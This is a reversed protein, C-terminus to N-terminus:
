SYIYLPEFSKILQQDELFPKGDLQLWTHGNWREDRELRIGFALSLGPYFTRLYSFLVFARVLCNKKKLKMPWQKLIFDVYSIVRHINRSDFSFFPKLWSFSAFRVLKQISVIRVMVLVLPVYFCLRIFLFPDKPVVM